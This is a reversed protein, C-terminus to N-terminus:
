EGLIGGFHAFTDFKKSILFWSVDDKKNKSYYALHFITALGWFDGSIIGRGGCVAFGIFTYLKKSYFIM